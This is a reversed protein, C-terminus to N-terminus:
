HSGSGGALELPNWSSDARPPVSHWNLGGTFVLWCAKIGGDGLTVSEPRCNALLGFRGLARSLTSKGVRSISSRATATDQTHLETSPGLAAAQAPPKWAAVHDRMKWQWRALSSSILVFMHHCPTGSMIFRQLWYWVAWREIKNTSAAKSLNEGHSLSLVCLARDTVQLAAQSRLYMQGSCVWWGTFDAPRLQVSHLCKRPPSMNAVHFRPTQHAGHGNDVPGSGHWWSHHPHNWDRTDAGNQVNNVEQTVEQKKMKSSSCLFARYDGRLAFRSYAWVFLWMTAWKGTEVVACKWGPPTTDANRLTLDRCAESGRIESDPTPTPAGRISMNDM